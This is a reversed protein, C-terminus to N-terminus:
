TQLVNFCTCFTFFAINSLCMSENDALIDKVTFCKETSTFDRKWPGNILDLTSYYYMNCIACHIFGGKGTAMAFHNVDVTYFTM